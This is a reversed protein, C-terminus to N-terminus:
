AALAFQNDNAALWCDIVLITQDISTSMEENSFFSYPFLIPSLYYSNQTLVFAEAERIATAFAGNKHANLEARLEDATMARMDKLVEALAEKVSMTGM